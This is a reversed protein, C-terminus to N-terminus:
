AEEIMRVAAQRIFVRKGSSQMLILMGEGGGLSFGGQGTEATGLLRVAQLMRGDSLVVHYPTMTDLRATVIPVTQERASMRKREKRGSSIMAYIILLVISSVIVAWVEVM